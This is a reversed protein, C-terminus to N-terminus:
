VKAIKLVTWQAIQAKAGELVTWQAFQMTATKLVTWQAFHVTAKTSYDVTCVVGDSNESCNV